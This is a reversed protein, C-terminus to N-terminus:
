QAKKDTMSKHMSKHMMSKHMTKHMPKQMMSDKVGNGNAGGAVPPEGGTAPGNQAIALSTAGAILAAAITVTKFLAM